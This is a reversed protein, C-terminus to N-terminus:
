RFSREGDIEKLVTINWPRLGKNRWSATLRMTLRAALLLVAPLLALKFHRSKPPISLPVGSADGSQAVIQVAAAVVAARGRM